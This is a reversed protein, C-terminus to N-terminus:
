GDERASDSASGLFRLHRAEAGVVAKLPITRDFTVLRGDKRVVLALLYADALKEHSGILAPRFLDGDVLSVSEQWFEHQPSSCLIRLRSIVEAPTASVTPYAPHSLVRACGALTVACSAWKRKRGFWDHAEDHNPHAPDFLAVLVNIDLLSANM